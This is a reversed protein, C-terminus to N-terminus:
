PAREKSICFGHTKAQKSCEILAAFDTRGEGQVYIGSAHTLLWFTMAHGKIAYDNHVGVRWGARRLSALLVFTDRGDELMM